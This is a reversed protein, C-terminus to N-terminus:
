RSDSVNKQRLRGIQLSSVTDITAELYIRAYIRWTGHHKLTNGHSTMRYLPSRHRGSCQVIGIRNTPCPTNRRM